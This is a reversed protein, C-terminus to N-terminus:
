VGQIQPEKLGVASFDGLLSSAVGMTDSLAQTASMPRVPLWAM